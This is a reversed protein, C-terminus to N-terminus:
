LAEYIDALHRAVTAAYDVYIQGAIKPICGGSIEFNLTGEYGIKKLTRAFEEYDTKDMWSPVTMPIAHQDGGANSNTHLAFLKKGFIKLAGVVDVGFINAHGTDFCIGVYDNNYYEVYKMLDEPYAVYSNLYNVGDHAYINEIALRVDCEKLTLLLGDILRINSNWTDKADDGYYLHIAAVSCDMERAARIGRKLPELMFDEFSQYNNWEYDSSGNPLYPLHVQGVFLGESKIEEYIKGYDRDQVSVYVDACDFGAKKMAKASDGFGAQLAGGVSGIDMSIYM